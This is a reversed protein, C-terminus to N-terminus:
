FTWEVQVKVSDIDSNKTPAGNNIFDGAFFHSYGLMLSTNKDLKYKFTLDIESGVFRDTAAGGAILAGSSNYLADSDSARWFVHYAARVKLKKNVVFSFGTSADIINQRGIMDVYGFYAHELAFLQNFTQVDGGASNDGSAYDFGIFPRFKSEKDITYGIETAVSWARIDGAGLTGFQYAAEVDYDLACDPLHGFLRGGVTYRNEDGTTGNFSNTNDSQDLGLFYVDAHVGHTNSLPGTAYAGFFETQADTTNFDYKRVPAQQVWFGHTKWDGQHLIISAGDWTLLTNRWSMASVLREAGFSLMQRGGRLTLTSKEGIDFTLDAFAQQLALEDTDATRQGGALDRDTSFASKGEVFARFHKGVHLDGHLRVRTLLFGDDYKPDFKYNDYYEYRARASGGISLWVSGNDNLDIHKLPDLGSSLGKSDATEPDFRSWDENQRLSKDFYPRDSTESKDAGEAAAAPVSVTAVGILTLLSAATSQMFIKYNYSNM